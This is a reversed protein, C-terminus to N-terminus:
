PAVTFSTLSFSASGSSVGVGNAFFCGGGFSLGISSVNKVAAAFGAAETTASQGNWDSWDTSALSLSLTSGGNTLTFSQPNSWWFGTYSFKSNPGGTFYLRVAPATNCGDPAGGYTFVAGPATITFNATITKGTLDGLLSKDQATTLLAAVPTTPFAFSAIVGSSGPAAKPTYATGGANISYVNWPSSSAVAVSSVMAVMVLAATMAALLRKM